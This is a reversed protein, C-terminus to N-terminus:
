EKDSKVSVVVDAPRLSYDDLRYGKKVVEVITEEPLDDNEVKAVINHCTFDAKGETSHEVVGLGTLVARLQECVMEFGKLMNKNEESVPFELAKEFLDLTPLFKKVIEVTCLQNAKEMNMQTRRKYNLFDAQLRQYQQECEEVKQLANQLVLDNETSAQEQLSDMNAHLNDSNEPSKGPENKIKENM